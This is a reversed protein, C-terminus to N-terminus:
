WAAVANSCFGIAPNFAGGSIKGISGTGLFVIIPSVITGAMASNPIENVTITSFVLLASIIIEGVMAQGDSYNEGVQVEVTEDTCGWALLAGIM